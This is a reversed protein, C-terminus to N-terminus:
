SISWQVPDREVRSAWTEVGAFREGLIAALEEVAPRETAYHGALIM